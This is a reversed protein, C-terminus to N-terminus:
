GSGSVGPVSGEGNCSRLAFIKWMMRAPPDTDACENPTGYAPDAYFSGERQAHDHEVPHAGRGLGFVLVPAM